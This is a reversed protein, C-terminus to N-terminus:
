RGLVKYRREERELHFAWKQKSAELAVPDDALDAWEQDRKRFAELREAEKRRVKAREEARQARWAANQEALRRATNSAVTVAKPADDSRCAVEHPEWPVPRLGPISVQAAQGDTRAYQRPSDIVTRAHKRARAVDIHRWPWPTSLHGRQQDETLEFWFPTVPILEAEEVNELLSVVGAAARFALVRLYATGRESIASSCWACVTRTDGNVKATTWGPIESTSLASRPERGFRPVACGCCWCPGGERAAHFTSLLEDLVALRRYAPVDALDPAVWGLVEARDLADLLTPETALLARAEHTTETVTETM